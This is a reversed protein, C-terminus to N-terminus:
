HESGRDIRIDIFTEAALEAAGQGHKMEVVPSYSLRQVSGTEYIYSIFDAGVLQLDIRYGRYIWPKLIM